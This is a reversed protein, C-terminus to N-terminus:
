RSVWRAGVAGYPSGATEGRGVNATWAEKMGPPTNRQMQTWWATISPKAAPVSMLISASEQRLPVACIRLRSAASSLDGRKVPKLVCASELGCYLGM